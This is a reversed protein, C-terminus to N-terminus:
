SAAGARRAATALVRAALAGAVRRRYSASAHLDDHPDLRAAAARGVEGLVAADPARGVAAAGAEVDLVPTSGAGLFALRLEAVRGDEDLGVRAGAGVLAFDGHRRSVEAFADGVRAGRAPM